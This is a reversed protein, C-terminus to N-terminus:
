AFEAGLLVQSEVTGNSEPIDRGCIAGIALGAFTLQPVVCCFQVTWSPVEVQKPSDM